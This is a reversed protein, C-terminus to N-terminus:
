VTVSGSTRSRSRPMATSSGVSDTSKWTFLEGKAPRAPLYTVVRWNRSRSLRSNCLLTASRTSAVSCGSVNVTDPRPSSCRVIRM